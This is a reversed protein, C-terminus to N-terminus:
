LTWVCATLKLLCTMAGTTIQLFHDDYCNFNFHWLLVCFLCCCFLCVLLPSWDFSSSLLFFRHPGSSLIWFDFSSLSSSSILLPWPLFFLNHSDNTQSHCCWVRLMNDPGFSFV